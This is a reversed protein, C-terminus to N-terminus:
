RVRLFDAVMLDCLAILRSLHSSRLEKIGVIIERRAFGGMVINM